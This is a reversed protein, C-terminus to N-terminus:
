EDKLSFLHSYSLDLDIEYNLYKYIKLMMKEFIVSM